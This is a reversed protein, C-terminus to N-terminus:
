GDTRGHPATGPSVEGHGIREMIRALIEAKEAEDPRIGHSQAYRDALAQEEEAWAIAAAPEAETLVHQQEVPRAMIHRAFEKNDVNRM